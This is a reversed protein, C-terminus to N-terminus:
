NSVSNLTKIIIIKHDLKYDRIRTRNFVPPPVELGPSNPM